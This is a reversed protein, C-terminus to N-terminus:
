NAFVNKGPSMKFAPRHWLISPMAVVGFLGKALAQAQSRLSPFHLLFDQPLNVFFHTAVAQRFKDLAAADTLVSHIDSQMHLQAKVGQQKLLAKINFEIADLPWAYDEGSQSFDARRLQQQQMLEPRPSSMLKMM